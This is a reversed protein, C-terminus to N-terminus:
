PKLLGRATSVIPGIYYNALYWIQQIHSPDLALSLLAEVLAGMFLM